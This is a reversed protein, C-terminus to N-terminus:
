QTFHFILLLNDQDLMELQLTRQDEDKFKSSHSIAKMGTAGEVQPNQAGAGAVGTPEM